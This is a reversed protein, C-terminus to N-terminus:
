ADLLDGGRAIRQQHVRVRTIRRQDLSRVGLLPHLVVAQHHEEFAFLRELAGGVGEVQAATMPTCMSMRSPLSARCISGASECFITLATDNGSTLRVM